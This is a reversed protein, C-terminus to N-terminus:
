CGQGSRDKSARIKLEKEGAGPLRPVLGFHRREVMHAFTAATGFRGPVHEGILRLPGFAQAGFFSLPLRRLRRFLIAQEDDPHYPRM